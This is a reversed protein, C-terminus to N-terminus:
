SPLTQDYRFVEAGMLARGEVMSLLSRSYELGIESLQVVSIAQVDQWLHSCLGDIQYEGVWRKIEALVVTVPGVIRQLIVLVELPALLPYGLANPYELGAPSDKEPIKGPPIYLKSMVEVCGAHQKTMPYRYVYLVRKGYGSPKVWSMAAHEVVRLTLRFGEVTRSNWNRNAPVTAPVYLVIASM